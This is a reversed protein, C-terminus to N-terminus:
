RKMRKREEEIMADTINFLEKLENIRNRVKGTNYLEPISYMIELSLIRRCVLSQVNSLLVMPHPHCVETAKMKCIKCIVEGYPPYIKIEKHRSIHVIFANDMEHVKPIENLTTPNTQINKMKMVGDKKTCVNQALAIMM